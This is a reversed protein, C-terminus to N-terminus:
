FKEEPKPDTAEPPVGLIAERISVLGDKLIGADLNEVATWSRTGFTNFILDVKAAKDGGTQSPYAAVLEGQIEECLIARTRKERKWGADGSEDVDFDTKLATDVSTHSGPVLKQLHPLFFEKVPGIAENIDATSEFEAEEGDLVMFRDKLVIARRVSSQRDKKSVKRDLLMQVLLSPEYGFEGETKMKIGTKILEKKGRENEEFDYEYGARGCVILHMPSNLYFDTWRQWRPKLVNWDEFELRRQPSWNKRKRVGNKQELYAECMERWPHSISDVIGVSVNSELCKKGWAMMDDFSRARKVLPLQGTLAEIHDRVYGSGGETDFMAIPGDHKLMDRAIIALLMATISKGTGQFGLFGAKLVGPTAGADEWFSDTTESM